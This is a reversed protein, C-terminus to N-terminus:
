LEKGDAPEAGFLMNDVYEEMFEPSAALDYVKGARAIDRAEDELAPYLTLLVAGELSTNAAREVHAHEPLLGVRSAADLSLTRGLGGCLWLRDLAIDARECLIHLGAAVAAKATQFNRVDAQALFVNDCIIIAPVGEQVTCVDCQASIAGTYDIFGQELCTAIAAILGTGCVGEPTAGEITHVCFAGDKWTVDDIAGALAPMGCTIGGGEFVPGAATSVCLIDAGRVAAMEGNTGLDVFVFNGDDKERVALLGCVIDAGIFASMCPPLYVDCDTDLDLSGSSVCRGFLSQTRYPYTGMERVRLGALLHLMTTNGSIVIRAVASPAFHLARLVSRLLANIGSRLLSTLEKRGGPVNTAYEIRTMIDSGIRVQPNLSRAGAVVEGTQLDVVSAELMTSGADIAVGVPGATKEAGAYVHLEDVGAFASKATARANTRVCTEFPCQGRLCQGRCIQKMEEGSTEKSLSATQCM